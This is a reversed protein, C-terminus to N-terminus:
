DTDNSEEQTRIRKYKGPQLSEQRVAKSFSLQLSVSTMTSESIIVENPRSPFLRDVLM